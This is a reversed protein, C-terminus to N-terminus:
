TLSGKFLLTVYNISDKLLAGMYNKVKKRLKMSPM